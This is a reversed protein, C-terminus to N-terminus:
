HASQARWRGPQAPWPRLRNRTPPLAQADLRRWLPREGFSFVPVIDDRRSLPVTLLNIPDLVWRDECPWRALAALHAHRPAPRDSRRDSHRHWACLLRVGSDPTGSALLLFFKAIASNERDGAGRPLTEGPTAWHDHSPDDARPEVIQDVWANLVAIREPVGLRAADLALEDFGQRGRRRTMADAHGRIPWVAFGAGDLCACAERRRLWPMGGARGAGADSRQHGAHM